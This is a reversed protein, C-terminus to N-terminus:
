LLVREFTLKNDIEKQTVPNNTIWDELIDRNILEINHEKGFTIADSDFYNNTIVQNKFIEYLKEKYSPLAYILEQCPTSNVEKKTQEVRILLYQNDKFFAIDVGKNNTSSTLGAIGNYKKELIIAIVSIFAEKSLEDIEEITSYQIEKIIGSGGSLSGLFDKNSIEIQETPFLTNTALNSKRSLLENLIEDFSKFEKKPAIAMPYYVKVPKDQGIRYARDTAQQEKAPNWHRTYHIVHNAGTINLGFGAAIPSMVIANFGEKEQYKDIEQQRSLKVIRGTSKSTPTEGNIISIPISYRESIIQRLVRQMSRSETFVIVKEEKNKIEEIISITRKLKASTNILEESDIEEIKKLKLYPHDSINRLNFIGQLIPNVNTEQNKLREISNVENMYVDYQVKPMEDHFPIYEITPLDKAVDVKMRRMLTSGIENRLRNSLEVLDTNEEKLPAQYKKSFLKASDLLGPSCFDIICWLDMLSNEVPTGTMAIKYDASLAKASNTVLTGPTKVKQAEDLIVVGWNIMAMPVQQKRLTEYTTLFISSKSLNSITADKDNKIIINHVNSGWLIKVKYSSNHFFKEYENQWNELLSVPAVILIPKDNGSQKYWEIFYLVQITKGLGMDDALLVGPSNYPPNYLTQLWAVGNKQHDKLAIGKSLNTIAQLEFNVDEIKEAKNSFELEETNEKIILVKKGSEKGEEVIPKDPFKLQKEANDIIDKLVDNDIKSDKVISTSKGKKESEELISKYEELEDSNNIKVVTRGNHKDDIVFGPLWQSKYPSIFPHFSPKYIGYELVRDGFDDLDIIDTDWFSTPSDYIENIEDSTYDRKKKVKELETKISNGVENKTEDIVVRVKKGKNKDTYSYEGKVRPFIRFKKIFEGSEDGEIKPVLKYRDDGVQEIDFKFGKPSSIETDLLIKSMVAGSEFALDKIEAIKLLVENSTSFSLTNFENIKSILLFQKSSLLYEMENNSLHAGVLENTKFIINGSGNKHAFDQFSYKVKLNKDKLGSGKIDIFIDFPYLKPLGLTDYEFNDISSINDYRIQIGSDTIEGIGNVTIDNIVNLFLNDTIVDHWKDFTLSQDNKSSLSLLVGINNYAKKVM